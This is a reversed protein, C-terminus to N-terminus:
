IWLSNNKILNRKPVSDQARLFKHIRRKMKPTKQSDTQKNLPNGPHQGTQETPLPKSARNKLLPKGVFLILALISGCVSLSLITVLVDSM